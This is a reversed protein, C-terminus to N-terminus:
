RGNVSANSLQEVSVRRGGGGEGDGKGWRSKGSAEEKRVEGVWEFVGYVVITYVGDRVGDQGENGNNWGERHLM